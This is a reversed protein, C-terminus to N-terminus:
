LSCLCLPLNFEPLYASQVRGGAVPLLSIYHFFRDSARFVEEVLNTPTFTSYSRRSFQSQAASFLHHFVGRSLFKKKISTM